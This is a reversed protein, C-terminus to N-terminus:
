PSANSNPKHGRQSATARRRVRAKKEPEGLGIKRLEDASWGDSLAANYLRLDEREAQAIQERLEALQQRATVLARVSNIRSDLLARAQRETDEANLGRTAM